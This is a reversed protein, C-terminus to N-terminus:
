KKFQLEINQKKEGSPLNLTYTATSRAIRHVKVDASYWIVQEVRAPTGDMTGSFKFSIKKCKLTKGGAKIDEDGLVKLEEVKFGKWGQARENEILQKHLKREIRFRSKLVRGKRQARGDMKLRRETAVTVSLVGKSELTYVVEYEHSTGDTTIKLDYTASQEAQANAYLSDLKQVEPGIQATAPLAFVLVAGLCVLLSFFRSM